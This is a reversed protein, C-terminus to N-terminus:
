QCCKMATNRRAWRETSFKPVSCPVQRLLKRTPRSSPSGGGKIDRQAAPENPLLQRCTRRQQRLHRYRPWPSSDLRHPELFISEGLTLSSIQSAQSADPAVLRHFSNKVVSAGSVPSPVEDEPIARILVSDPLEGAPIAVHLAAPAAELEEAFDRLALSAVSSLGHDAYFHDLLCFLVIKTSSVRAKMDNFQDSTCVSENALPTSLYLWLSRLVAHKQSCPALGLALVSSNSNPRIAAQQRKEPKANIRDLM